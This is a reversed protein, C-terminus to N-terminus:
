FSDPKFLLIQSTKFNTPLISHPWGECFLHNKKGSLRSTKFLSKRLELAKSGLAREM